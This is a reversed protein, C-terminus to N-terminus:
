NRTYLYINADNGFAKEFRGIARVTLFTTQGVAMGYSQVFEIALQNDSSLSELTKEIELNTDYQKFVVKYDQDIGM